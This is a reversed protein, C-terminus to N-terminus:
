SIVYSETPWRSQLLLATESDTIPDRALFATRKHTHNPQACTCYSIQHRKPAHKLPYRTFERQQFHSTRFANSSPPSTKSLTSFKSHKGDAAIHTGKVKYQWQWAVVAMTTTRGQVSTEGQNIDRQRRRPTASVDDQIDRQHRGSTAKVDGHRRKATARVDGQRRWSTAKVDGQRQRSTTKRDGQHRRSTAKVDGHHRRLTAKVDGHRRRSTSKVDGHHRGLTAKIDGPRRWLTARGDHQRRGWTASPRRRHGTPEHRANNNIGQRM